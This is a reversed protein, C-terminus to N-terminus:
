AHATRVEAGHLNSLVHALVSGFLPDCFFCCQFGPEFFFGFLEFFRTGFNRLPTVTKVFLISRIAHAVYFTFSRPYCRALAPLSRTEVRSTKMLFTLLITVFTLLFLFFYSTFGCVHREFRLLRKLVM